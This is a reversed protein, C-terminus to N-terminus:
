PFDKDSIFQKSGKSSILEEKDRSLLKVILPLHKILKSGKKYERDSFLAPLEIYYTLCIFRKECSYAPSRYIASLPQCM